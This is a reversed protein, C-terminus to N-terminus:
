NLRKMLIVCFIVSCIIPLLEMSWIWIVLKQQLRVNLYFKFWKQRMDNKAEVIYVKKDGRHLVSEFYNTAKLFDEDLDENVQIQVCTIISVILHFKLGKASSSKVSDLCLAIGQASSNSINIYFLIQSMQAPISNDSRLLTGGTTSLSLQALAYSDLFSSTKKQFGNVIHKHEFIDNILDIQLDIFSFAIFEDLEKSDRLINPIQNRNSLYKEIKAKKNQIPVKPEFCSRLRTLSDTTMTDTLDESSARPSVSKIATMFWTFWCLIESLSTSTKYTRDNGLKLLHITSAYVIGDTDIAFFRFLTGNTLVALVPTNKGAALRKKLLCGAKALVQPVASDLWEKKAEVVLFFIDTVKAVPLQSSGFM